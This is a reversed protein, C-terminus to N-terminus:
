TEGLLMRAMAPGACARCCAPHSMDPPVSPTHISGINQQMTSCQRVHGEPVVFLQQDGIRWNPPPTHSQKIKIGAHGNWREQVPSYGRDAYLAFDEDSFVLPRFDGEWGILAMNRFHTAVLATENPRLNLSIRGNTRILMRRSQFSRRLYDFYPHLTPEGGTLEITWSKDTHSFVWTELAHPDIDNGNNRWKVM